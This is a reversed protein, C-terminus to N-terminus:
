TKETTQLTMSIMNRTMGSSGDVDLSIIKRCGLSGLYGFTMVLWGSYWWGEDCRSSPLEEEMNRGRAVSTRMRKATKRQECEAGFYGAGDADKRTDM